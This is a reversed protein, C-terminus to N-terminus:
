RTRVDDNEKSLYGVMYCIGLVLMFVAKFVFKFISWFFKTILAFGNYAVERKEEDIDLLKKMTKSAM